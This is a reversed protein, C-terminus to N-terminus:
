RQVAPGFFADDVTVPTQKRLNEVASRALEPRMKKELDPKVQDFSTTEHQEVKIVHYGFRTKVPESIQGVPLNFAVQEFEAVMQGHKFSGLDGGKAGSAGDDSEAKALSAFDQGAQLKQRIEKAKALAEEETLEKKGPQLPLPSGKARILIHDAHVSEYESKHQDYYQKLTADDVRVNTTMDQFLANAL